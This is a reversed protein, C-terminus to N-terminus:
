EQIRSRIYNRVWVYKGLIRPKDEYKKIMEDVFDKMGRIPESVNQSGGLSELMRPNLYDIAFVGDNDKMVSDLCLDRLALTVRTEVDTSYSRKDFSLLWDVISDSLVVRPYMAVESELRYAEAVVPGYIDGEGTSYGAGIAIGARFPFGQDLGCLMMSACSRFIGSVSNLPFHGEEALPCFLVLGDSFRQTTIHAKRFRQITEAVDSEVGQIDTQHRENCFTAHFLFNDQIFKIAQVSRRIRETFERRGKEDSKPPMFLLGEMQARQGLVDVFAVIYNQINIEM